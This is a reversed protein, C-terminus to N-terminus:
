SLNRSLLGLLLPPPPKEFVLLLSFAPEKLAVGLGCGLAVARMSLTGTGGSNSRSTKEDLLRAEGLKRCTIVSRLIM